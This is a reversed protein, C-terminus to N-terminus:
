KQNYSSSYLSIQNNEMKYVYSKGWPDLPIKEVYSGQYKPPIPAITPKTVLAALGQETTPYQGNNLKYLQLAIRLSHIDADLQTIKSNLGISAINVNFCEQKKCSNANTLNKCEGIGSQILKPAM